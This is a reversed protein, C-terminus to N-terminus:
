LLDDPTLNRLQLYQDVPMLSAQLQRLQMDTPYLIAVYGERCPRSPAPLLHM